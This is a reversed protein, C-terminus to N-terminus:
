LSDWLKDFLLRQLQAIGANEVVSGQVQGLSTLTLQAVKDGYIIIYSPPSQDATLSKREALEALASEGGVSIVRVLLGMKIRHRTFNRFKKYMQNKVEASSVVRYTKEPDEAVTALVDQLLVAIEEDGEYHRGFPQMTNEPRLSELQKAYESVSRLEEQLANQREAAYKRLADPQEARYYKRSNKYYGAVLGLRVLKKIVEFTTGRNMNVSTAITRISSAEPNTLMAEYVRLDRPELGFLTYDFTLKM